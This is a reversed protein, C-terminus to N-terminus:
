LKHSLLWPILESEGYAMDWVNHYGGPYETYKVEAGVLNMAFKFSRAQAVPVIDDNAGHFIWVPTKGILKAFATYPNDALIQPYDRLLEQDLIPDNVDDDNELKYFGSIPVIAAFKNITKSAMLWVGQGGMSLGTLYLQAPNGNFEAVSQDLALLALKAIEGAWRTNARAQPMVVIMPFREPNKRIAAGVGNETQIENDLGREGSGHLALLVPWKVKSSYDKPIFVKYHYETGNLNVSRDYFGSDIAHTLPFCILQFFIAIKIVFFIKKM